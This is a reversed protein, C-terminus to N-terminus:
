TFRLLQRRASRDSPIWLDPRSHYINVLRPEESRCNKSTGAFSQGVDAITKSEDTIMPGIIRPRRQPQGGVHVM